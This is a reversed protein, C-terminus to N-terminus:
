MKLFEALEQMGEMAFPIWIKTEEGEKRDTEGSFVVLADIGANKACLIDTYIRDGIMVADKKKCGSRRCCEKVIAPEPKGIYYPKRGTANELMMCISGCDPVAGFTTPCCLDPNTALFKVDPNTLIRSADELKHFQLTTDFAVLVCVVEEDYEEVIHLGAGTMAERLSPTGVLYIKQEAFREKCYLIAMLGATLFQEEQTQIGWQAFYKVFDAASRTSNNTTFYFQKDNEKLYELVEKSGPLLDDGLALTGDIDFLFLKKEKLKKYRKKNDDIM